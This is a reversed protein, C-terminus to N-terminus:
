LIDAVVHPLGRLPSPRLGDFRTVDLLGCGIGRHHKEIGDTCRCVKSQRTSLLCEQSGHRWV